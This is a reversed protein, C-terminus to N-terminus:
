KLSELAQIALKEELLIKNNRINQMMEHQRLVDNEINSIKAKIKHIKRKGSFSQSSSPPDSNNLKLKSQLNTLEIYSSELNKQFKESIKEFFSQFSELVITPSHDFIIKAIEFKGYMVAICFPTIGNQDEQNIFAKYGSGVQQSIKAIVLKILKHTSIDDQKEEILIRLFDLYNQPTNKSLDKM